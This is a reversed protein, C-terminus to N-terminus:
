DEKKKFNFIMLLGPSLGLQPHYASTIDLRFSKFNLGLGIWASSTASAIGARALLQPLFKYQLGASVNVPQDEEKVLEASFFFKESADYGMGITYVSPLKEQQDKGFKGGVPNNVHFGTHLKESIQFLTGAEFSITSANGYGAIRIGNYNFQIGIDANSGLKRAYALGIGTENYETFGSYRANLGFSGSRTPLGIALNFSNLEDLMFRREGFVGAAASTLRALSAQNSGPSFVDVHNLSYAGVGTYPSAVPRRLGQGSAVIGISTTILTLLFGRIRSYQINRCNITLHLRDPCTIGTL